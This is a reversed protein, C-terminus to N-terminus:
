REKRERSVPGPATTVSSVMSGEEVAVPYLKFVSITCLPDRSHFVIEELPLLEGAELHYIDVYDYSYGVDGWQFGLQLSLGAEGSELSGLELKDIEGFVTSPHTTLSVSNTEYERIDIKGKRGMEAFYICPRGKENRGQFNFYLSDVGGNTDTRLHMDGLEASREQIAATDAVMNWMETLSLKDLEQPLERTVAIKTGSCGPMVVVLAVLCFIILTRPNIM